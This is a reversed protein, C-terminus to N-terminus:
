DPNDLVILGLPRCMFREFSIKGVNEVEFANIEKCTRSNGLLFPSGM